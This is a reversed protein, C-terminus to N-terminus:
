IEISNILFLSDLFKEVVTCVRNPFTNAHLSAFLPLLKSLHTTNTTVCMSLYKSGLRKLRFGTKFGDPKSDSNKETYVNLECHMSLFVDNM